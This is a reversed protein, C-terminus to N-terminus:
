AADDPGEDEDQPQYHRAFWDATSVGPPRREPEARRERMRALHQESSSVSPLVILEPIEEGRARAALKEAATAPRTKQESSM